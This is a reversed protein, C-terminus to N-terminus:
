QPIERFDRGGYGRLFNWDDIQMVFGLEAFRDQLERLTTPRPCRELCDGPLTEPPVWYDVIWDVMDREAVNMEFTWILLSGPDDPRMTTIHKILSGRVGLTKAALEELAPTTTM